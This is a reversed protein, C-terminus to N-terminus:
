KKFDSELASLLKRDSDAFDLEGIEGFSAWRWETHEQLIFNTDKFFVRYANLSFKRGRHEFAAEALFPGTEVPVGLEELYERKLAAEDSEGEEVKGGPFEWKGGLDGGSKRRAIFLKGGEFAIGAVSKKLEGM